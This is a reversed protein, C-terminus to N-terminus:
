KNGIYLYSLRVSLGPEQLFPALSFKLRSDQGGHRTTGSNMERAQGQVDNLPPMVAVGAEEGLFVVEGILFPEALSGLRDAALQM